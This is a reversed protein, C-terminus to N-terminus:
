WREFEVSFGDAYRPLVAVSEETVSSISAARPGSELQARLDSLQAATGIAYVEVRGDHLNKVYGAVGLRDAIRQAFYRYGVGQVMGSIVFRKALVQDAM